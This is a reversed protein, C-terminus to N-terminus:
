VHANKGKKRMARPLVNTHRKRQGPPDTKAPKPHLAWCRVYPKSRIINFARFSQKHTHHHDPHTIPGDGREAPQSPLRVTRNPALTVRLCRYAHQTISSRFAGPCPERLFPWASLDFMSNSQTRCDVMQNQGLWSSCYCITGHM